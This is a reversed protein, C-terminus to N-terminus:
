RAARINFLRRTFVSQFLPDLWRYLRGSIAIPRGREVARLGDRVVVDADYWLLSPTTSKWEDRGAVAHFETHTFGPCLACTHVGASKLTLNM